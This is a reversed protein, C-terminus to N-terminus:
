KKHGLLVLALSLPRSERSKWHFYYHCAKTGDPINEPAVVVQVFRACHGDKFGLEARPAFPVAERHCRPRATDAYYPRHTLTRVFAVLLLIACGTMTPM